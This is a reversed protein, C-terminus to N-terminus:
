GQPVSWYDGLRFKHARTDGMMSVTVKRGCPCIEHGYARSISTRYASHQGLSGISTAGFGSASLSALRSSKQSATREFM